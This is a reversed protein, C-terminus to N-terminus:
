VDLRTATLILAHAPGCVRAWPNRALRLRRAAWAFTDCLEEEQVLGAQVAKAFAGVIQAHHIVAPDSKSDNVPWFLDPNARKPM